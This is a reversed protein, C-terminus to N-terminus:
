RKIATLFMEGQLVLRAVGVLKLVRRTQASGKESAAVLPILRDMINLHYVM